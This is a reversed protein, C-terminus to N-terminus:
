GQFYKLLGALIECEDYIFMWNPILCELGVCIDEFYDDYEEITIIMITCEHINSALIM